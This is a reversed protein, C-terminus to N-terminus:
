TEKAMENTNIPNAGVVNVNTAATHKNENLKRMVLMAMLVCDIETCRKNVFFIVPESCPRHLVPPMAPTPIQVKNTANSTGILM